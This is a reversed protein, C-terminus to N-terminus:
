MENLSPGWFGNGEVFKGQIPTQRSNEWTDDGEASGIEGAACSLFPYKIQVLQSCGGEGEEESPESLDIGDLAMATGSSLLLLGALALSTALRVGVRRVSQFSAAAVNLKM